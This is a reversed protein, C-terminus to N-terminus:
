DDLKDLPCGLLLPASWLCWLSIHTYQEDPSLRTPHLKGWGVDGVVLMDPDSWHGPGTFKEWKKHSEWIDRIGLAWKEREDFYSRQWGDRIDGTTRWCNALRAWDAAGDFPASNSLSYVIDRGSAKLADAM